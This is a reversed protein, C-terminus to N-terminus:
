NPVSNKSKEIPRILKAPMDGVLVKMNRESSEM